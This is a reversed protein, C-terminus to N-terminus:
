IYEIKYDVGKPIKITIPQTQPLKKVFDFYEDVTVKEEELLWENILQKEQKTKEYYELFEIIVGMQANTKIVYKAMPKKELYDIFIEAITKKM